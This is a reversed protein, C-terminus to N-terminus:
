SRQRVLTPLPPLYHYCAAVTLALGTYAVTFVWVPADYYLLRYLLQGIFSREYGPVGSAILFVHELWTLPCRVGLLAEVAVIATCLVHALRFWRRRVWPWDLWAGLLIAQLGGIVFAAYAVHLLLVADALVLMM